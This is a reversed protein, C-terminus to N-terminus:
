ASHVPTPRGLHAEMDLTPRRIALGDAVFAPVITFGCGGLGGLHLVGIDGTRSRPMWEAITREAAPRLGYWYRYEGEALAAGFMPFRELVREKIEEVTDTVYRPARAPDALEAYVEPETVLRGSAGGLCIHGCARHPISYTLEHERDEDMLVIRDFPEPVKAPDVLLLVGLDGEIRKDELLFQARDGAAVCAVEAGFAATIRLLDDVDEVHRVEPVVGDLGSVARYLLPM